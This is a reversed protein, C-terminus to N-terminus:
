RRTRIIGPEELRWVSNKLAEHFNGFHNEIAKRGYKGNRLYESLLLTPQGLKRCIARIDALIEEDSFYNFPEIEYETM